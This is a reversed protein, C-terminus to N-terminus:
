CDPVVRAMRPVRSQRAVWSLRVLRSRWHSGCRRRPVCSRSVWARRTATPPSAPATPRPHSSGCFRPVAPQHLLMVRWAEVLRWWCEYPRLMRRVMEDWGTMHVCAEAGIYRRQSVMPVPVCLRLAAFACLIACADGILSRLPSLMAQFGNGKWWDPHRHKAWMFRRQVVISSFWSVCSPRSFAVVTTAVSGCWWWHDDAIRRCHGGDNKMALRSCRLRSCRTEVLLPTRHHTIRYMPGCCASELWGVRVDEVKSM